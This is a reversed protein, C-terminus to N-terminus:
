KLNYICDALQGIYDFVRNTDVYSNDEPEPSRIEKLFNIWRDLAGDNKKDSLENKYQNITKFKILKGNDRIGCVSISKKLEKSYVRFSPGKPNKPICYINGPSTSSQMNDITYVEAGKYKLINILCEKFHEATM